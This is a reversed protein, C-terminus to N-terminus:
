RREYYVSQLLHELSINFLREVEFCGISHDCGYKIFM